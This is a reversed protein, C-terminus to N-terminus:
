DVGGFLRVGAMTDDARACAWLRALVAGEARKEPSGLILPEWGAAVVEDMSAAVSTWSQDEARFTASVLLDSANWYSTMCEACEVFCQGDTSRVMFRM